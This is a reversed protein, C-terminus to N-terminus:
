SVQDPLPQSSFCRFIWTGVLAASFLLLVRLPQASPLAADGLLARFFGLAASGACLSFYVREKAGRSISVLWTLVSTVSLYILLFVVGAAFGPAHLSLATKPSALGRVAIGLFVLVHALAILARKRSTLIEFDNM